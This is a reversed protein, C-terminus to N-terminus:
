IHISKSGRKHWDEALPMKSLVPLDKIGFLELKDQIIKYTEYLCDIYGKDYDADGFISEDSMLVLFDYVIDNVLGEYVDSKNM